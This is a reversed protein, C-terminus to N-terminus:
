SCENKKHITGAYFALAVFAENEEPDNWPSDGM